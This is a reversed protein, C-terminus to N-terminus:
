DWEIPMAAAEEALSTRYVVISTMMGQSNFVFMTMGSLQSSRGSAPVNM